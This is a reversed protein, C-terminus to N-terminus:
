IKFTLPIAFPVRVLKGKVKGPTMQPLLSIIRRAENMLIPDAGFTRIHNVRGKKDVLFFINVRGTINKRRAKKPYRFNEQIHQLMKENFCRRLTEIPRGECGPYIPVEDVVEFGIDETSYKNGFPLPKLSPSDTGRDLEFFLKTHLMESLPNGKEDIQVIFDDLDKLIGDNLADIYDDPSSINSNLLDLKGSNGVALNSMISVTDRTSQEAILQIAKEDYSELIKQQLQKYFCEEKNVDDKCGIYVSHNKRKEQSFGFLVFLSVIISLYIKM